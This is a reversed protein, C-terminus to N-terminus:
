IKDNQFSLPFHHFCLGFTVACGAIVAARVVESASENAESRGGGGVRWGDRGIGWGWGGNMM